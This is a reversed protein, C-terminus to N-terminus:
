VCHIGFTVFDRAEQVTAFASQTLNTSGNPDRSLLAARWPKAQAHESSITTQWVLGAPFSPETDPVTSDRYTWVVRYDGQALETMALHWRYAAPTNPVAPHQPPTNAAQRAAAIARAKLDAVTQATPHTAPNTDRAM